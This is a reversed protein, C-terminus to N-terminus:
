HVDNKGLRAALIEGPALLPRPRDDDLSNLSQWVLAIDTLELTPDDFVSVPKPDAFISDEIYPLPVLDLDEVDVGSSVDVLLGASDQRNAESSSGSALVGLTNSRRIM